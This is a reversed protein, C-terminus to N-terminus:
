ADHRRNDFLTRGPFTSKHAVGNKTILVMEAPRELVSVDDLPNATVVLLDALKGPAVSGM